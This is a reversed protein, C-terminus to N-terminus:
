FNLIRYPEWLTKVVAPIPVRNIELLGPTAEDSEFLKSKDAFLLKIWLLIGQKISEPVDAASGYGAVFEIEVANIGRLNKPWAAGQNLAIRGPNSVADVLYNSSDFVTATNAADYTNLFTVSQLPSRPIAVLPKVADFQDVPLEFYGERPSNRKERHPFGDLWLTWTQTILSRGAWEEFRQRVATILVNLFADDDTDSIRLYAKTDSLLVPESAPPTKQKLAM